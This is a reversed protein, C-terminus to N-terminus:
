PNPTKMIFYEVQSMESSSFVGGKGTMPLFGNTAGINAAEGKALNSGVSLTLVHGHGEPTLNRFGAVVLNGQFQERFAMNFDKTATFLSSHELETVMTNAMGRVNIASNGFISAVTALVDQTGYNCFTSNGRPALSPNHMDLNQAEKIATTLNVVNKGGQKEDFGAFQYHKHVGSGTEKYVANSQDNEHHILKGNEDYFDSLDAGNPDILLVPDDAGYNYPSWGPYKSAM